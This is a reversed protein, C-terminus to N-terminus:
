SAKLDSEEPGHGWGSGCPTSPAEPQGRVIRGTNIVRVGIREKVGGDGGGIRNILDKDLSSDLTNFIFPSFVSNM